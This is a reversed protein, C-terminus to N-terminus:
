KKSLLEVRELTLQDAVKFQLLASEFEAIAEDNPMPDTAIYFADSAGRSILFKGQIKGNPTLLLSWKTEGVALTKVNQTIRGQLYREADPGSVQYTQTNPIACWDGRVNSLLETPTM